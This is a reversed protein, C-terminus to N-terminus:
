KRGFGAFRDISPLGFGADHGKADILVVEGVEIGKRVLRAAGTPFREAPTQPTSAESASHSCLRQALHARHMDAELPARRARTSPDLGKEDGSFRSM